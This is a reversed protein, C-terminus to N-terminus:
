KDSQGDRYYKVLYEIVQTFSCDIGYKQMLEDKIGLLHQATDAGISVGVRGSKSNGKTEM